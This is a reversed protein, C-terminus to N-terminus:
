AFNACIAIAVNDPILDGRYTRDNIVVSPSYATGYTKWDKSEVRLLKNDDKSPDPGEFSDRVCKMTTEYARGLSKHAM